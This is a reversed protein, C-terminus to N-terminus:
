INGKADREEVILLKAYLADAFGRTFDGIQKSGVRAGDKLVHNAVLALGQDYLRQTKRDIDKWAQHQKFVPGLWDFTGVRPGIPVLDSRSDAGEIPKTRHKFLMLRPFIDIALRLAEIVLSEGQDGVM